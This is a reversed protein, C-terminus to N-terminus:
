RGVPSTKCDMCKCGTKTFFLEVYEEGYDITIEDGAAITKIARFMMRGRLLEAETNPDCSHNVYRAMNRRSSGDLTWRSNLEFMYKNARRSEIEQAKVTPIHRGTYQVVLARKRIAETAFLGLGTRSRGVRFPKPKM